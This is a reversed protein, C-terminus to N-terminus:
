AASSRPIFGVKYDLADNMYVIYDKSVVLDDELVIVKGYRQIVETVGSIVNSALGINKERKIVDLSKFSNFRSLESLYERVAEVSDRDNNDKAGDAFIYVECNEHGHAETLSDICAKLKDARKYAFIVIPAKM